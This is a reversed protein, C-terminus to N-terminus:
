KCTWYVYIKNKNIFIKSCVSKPCITSILMALIFTTFSYFHLIYKKIFFTLYDLGVIKERFLVSLLYIFIFIVWSHESISSLEWESLSFSNFSEKSLNAKSWSYPLCGNFATLITILQCFIDSHNFLNGWHFSVTLKGFVHGPINSMFNQNADLTFLLWTKFPNGYKSFCSIISIETENLLDIIKFSILGNLLLPLPMLVM